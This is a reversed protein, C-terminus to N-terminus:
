IGLVKKLKGIDCYGKGEKKQREEQNEMEKLLEELKPCGEPSKSAEKPTQGDLVPISTNIWNSFHKDLFQRQFREQIITPLKETEGVREGKRKHLTDEIKKVSSEKFRIKGQLLNIL